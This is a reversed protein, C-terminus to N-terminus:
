FTCAHDLVKRTFFHLLISAEQPVALYDKKRRLVELVLLAARSRDKESGTLFQKMLEFFPLLGLGEGEIAM